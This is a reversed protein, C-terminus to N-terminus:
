ALAAAARSLRGVTVPMSTSCESTSLWPSRSRESAGDADDVAILGKLDFAVQETAAFPDAYRQMYVGFGNGDQSDSDWAVVFGGHDLAAVFSRSQNGTTYTNVLSEGGLPAGAADFRQM